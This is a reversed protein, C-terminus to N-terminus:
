IEILSEFFHVVHDISLQFPELVERGADTGRVSHFKLEEWWSTSDKRGGKSHPDVQAKPKRPPKSLLSDVQLEPSRPEIGL